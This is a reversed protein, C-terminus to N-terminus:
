TTPQSSTSFPGSVRSVDRQAAPSWPCCYDFEVGTERAPFEELCYSGYLNTAWWPTVEDTCFAHSVGRSTASRYPDQVCHASSTEAATGDAPELYVVFFFSPRVIGCVLQTVCSSTARGKSSRGRGSGCPMAVTVSPTRMTFSRLMRWWCRGVIALVRRGRAAARRWRRKRASAVTTGGAAADTVRRSEGGPSVLYTRIHRTEM